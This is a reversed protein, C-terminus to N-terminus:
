PFRREPRAGRRDACFEFDREDIGVTTRGELVFGHQGPTDIRAEGDFEIAEVELRVQAVTREGASRKGRERALHVFHQGLHRPRGLRVAAADRHDSDQRCQSGAIEFGFGHRLRQAVARQGGTQAAQAALRELEVDVAFVRELQAAVVDGVLPGGRRQLEVKTHIGALEGRDVVRGLEGRRDRERGRAVRGREQPLPEPVLGAHRQELLRDVVPAVPAARVALSGRADREPSRSSQPM